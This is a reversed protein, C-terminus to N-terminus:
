SGKCATKEVEGMKSFAPEDGRARKSTTKIPKAPYLSISLSLQLITSALLVGVLGLVICVLLFSLSLVNLAALLLRLSLCLRRLRLTSLLRTWFLFLPRDILLCSLSGLLLGECGWLHIPFSLKELQM